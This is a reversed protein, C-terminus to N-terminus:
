CLIWCCLTVSFETSAMESWRDVFSFFFWPSKMQLCSELRLQGHICLYGLSYFLIFLWLSSPGSLMVFHRNKTRLGSKVVDFFIKTCHYFGCYGKKINLGCKGDPFCLVRLKWWTPVKTTRICTHNWRYTQLLSETLTQLFPLLGRTAIYMPLTNSTDLRHYILATLTKAKLIEGSRTVYSVHVCLRYM